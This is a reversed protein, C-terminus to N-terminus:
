IEQWTKALMDLIVTDIAEMIRHQLDNIDRVKTRYVIDKVYGWLFFDLLTISFSCPPWPIPGGCEIWRDPFSENLFEHVELGWYTPAGDQQFIVQPQYREFQPSLYETLIDLYIQATISKETFFFPSIIKDHMIGCWVNLKPSNQELKCTDHPNELGWIRLNHRILLGSVHFM